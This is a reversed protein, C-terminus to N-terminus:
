SLCLTLGISICAAIAAIAAGLCSWGAIVCTKLMIETQLTYHINHHLEGIFAELRICEEQDTIGGVTDVSLINAGLIRSAPIETALSKLNVYINELQQYRLKWDDDPCANLKKTLEILRRNYEKTKNRSM